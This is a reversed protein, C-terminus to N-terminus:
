LQKRIEKALTYSSYTKWKKKPTNSGRLDDEQDSIWYDLIDILLKGQDPNVTLTKTM